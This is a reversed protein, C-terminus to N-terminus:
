GEVHFHHTKTDYTIKNSRQVIQPSGPQDVTLVANGTCVLLTTSMDWDMRDSTVTTRTPEEHHQKRSPKSRITNSDTKPNATPDELSHVTVGGWAVVRREREESGGGKLGGVKPAERRDGQFLKVYPSLLTASPQDDHYLTAHVTKLTIILQDKSADPANANSNATTAQQDSPTSPISAEDGNDMSGQAADAILIRQLPARPNKPDPAYWPIHWGTGQVKGPLENQKAQAYKGVQLQATAPGGYTNLQDVLADRAAGKKPMCGTGAMLVIGMM